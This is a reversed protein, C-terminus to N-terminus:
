SEELENLVWYLTGYTKKLLTGILGEEKLATLRRSITRHNKQFKKVLDTIPLFVINGGNFSVSEALLYEYVQYALDDMMDSKVPSLM